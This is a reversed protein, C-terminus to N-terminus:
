FSEDHGMMKFKHHSPRKFLLIGKDTTGCMEWGKKGLKNLHEKLMRESVGATGALNWTHYEYKTM